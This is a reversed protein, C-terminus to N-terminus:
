HTIYRRRPRTADVRGRAGNQRVGTADSHVPSVDEGRQEGPDGDVASEERRPPPTDRFDPNPPKM